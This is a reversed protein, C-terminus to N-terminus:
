KSEAMKLMLDNKAKCNSKLDIGIEAGLKQMGDMDSM